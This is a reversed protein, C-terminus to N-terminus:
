KKKNFFRKYANTCFSCKKIIKKNHSLLLHLAYKLILSSIVIIIFLLIEKIKIFKISLLYVVIIQFADYYKEKEENCECTQKLINYLFIIFILTFVILYIM